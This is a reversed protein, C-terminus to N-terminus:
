QTLCVMDPDRDLNHSERHSSESFPCIESCPRSDRDRILMRQSRIPKQPVVPRPAPLLLFGEPDGGADINWGVTVSRRGFDNPLDNSMCPVRAHWDAHRADRDARYHWSECASRQEILINTHRSRRISTLFQTITRRRRRVEHGNNEPSRAAPRSCLEPV